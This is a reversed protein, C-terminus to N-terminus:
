PTTPNRTDATIGGSSIDVFDLGDAKLAKAVAVADDPTLGGETWDSGTIRAGLPMGKPVVARVAQATERPFRMRTELPGGYRDTRKNSIPSLFEHSLYGHAYHLEIADFGLRVARKAASAFAERVRAIDDENMERPTHWGNGFPIASPAITQWPDAEPKLAA